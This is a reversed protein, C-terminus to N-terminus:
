GLGRLRERHQRPTAGFEARFAHNFSSVDRFGSNMAVDVVRADGTALSVAARRLRARM